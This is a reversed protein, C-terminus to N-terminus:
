KRRDTTIYPLNTELDFTIFHVKQEYRCYAVAKQSDKIRHYIYRTIEGNVEYGDPSIELPLKTRVRIEMRQNTKFYVTM